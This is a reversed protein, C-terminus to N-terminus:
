KVPVGLYLALGIIDEHTAYKRLHEEIRRRIKTVDHKNEEVIKVTKRNLELLDCGILVTCDQFHKPVPSPTEVDFGRNVIRQLSPNEKVIKELDRVHGLIRTHM